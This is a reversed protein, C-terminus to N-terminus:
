EAASADVSVLRAHAVESRLVKGHLMHSVSLDGVFQAQGRLKEGADKRPVAQGIVAVRELVTDTM